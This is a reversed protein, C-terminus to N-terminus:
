TGQWPLLMLETSKFVAQDQRPNSSDPPGGPRKMMLIRAKGALNRIAEPSPPVTCFMVPEVEPYLTKRGCEGLSRSTPDFQDVNPLRPGFYGIINAYEEPIGKDLIVITPERDQYLFHSMELLEAVPYSLREYPPPSLYAKVYQLHWGGPLRSLKQYTEAQSLGTLVLAGALLAPIVWNPTRHANVREILSAWGLTSGLLVAPMILAFFRVQALRGHIIDDYYPLTILVLWAASLWLVPHRLRYRFGLLFGIWLLGGAVIWLKIPAVPNLRLEHEAAAFMLFLRPDGLPYFWWAYIGYFSLAVLGSTIFAPWYMKTPAHRFLITAYLLAFSVFVWVLEMKVVYLAFGMAGSLIALSIRRSNSAQVLALASATLLFMAPIEGVINGSFHRYVDSVLYLIASIIAGQLVARKPIDTGLIELIRVALLTGCALSCALLFTYIGTVIQLSTLGSGTLSTVAALLLTNGLRMFGWYPTDVVGPKYQPLADAIEKAHLQYSHFLPTEAAVKGRELYIPADWHVDQLAGKNLFVMTVTLVALLILLPTSLSKPLIVDDSEQLNLTEM